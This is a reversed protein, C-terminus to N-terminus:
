NRAPWRALVQAALGDARPPGVAELLLGRGSLPSVIVLASTFEGNFFVAIRHGVHDKTREALREAAQPTLRIRLSLAGESWTTDARRIDGDAFLVSDSVYFTSDALARPVYGPTASAAALRLEIIPPTPAQAGVQASFTLLAILAPPLSRM